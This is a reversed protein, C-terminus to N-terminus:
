HALALYTIAAPQHPLLAAKAARLTAGTTAVDDILLIRQGAIVPAKEIAISFAGTVNKLREERTLSTQSPRDDRKMLQSNFDIGAQKLIREM